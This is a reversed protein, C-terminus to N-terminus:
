SKNSKDPGPSAELLLRAEAHLIRVEHRERWDLYPNPRNMHENALEFNQRAKMSNGLKHHIMSLFLYDWARPRFSLASAEFEGLASELNGLRYQAAGVVRRAGPAAKSGRSAVAKLLAPNGACAPDLVCVYATQLNASTNTSKGFKSLMEACARRHSALDNQALYATALRYWERAPSPDLELYRRLHFSAGFWNEGRIAADAQNKHWTRNLLANDVIGPTSGEDREGAEWLVVTDGFSTALREGDPSFAAAMFYTSPHPFVLAEQASAVDWMQVACKPATSVLRRGDKSFALGIRNPASSLKGVRNEDAGFRVAMRRPEGTERLQGQAGVEFLRITWDAFACALLSGDPSFAAGTVESRSANRM